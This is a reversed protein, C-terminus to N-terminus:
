PFFVHAAVGLDKFADSPPKTRGGQTKVPEPFRRQTEAAKLFEPINSGEDRGAPIRNLAGGSAPNYKVVIIQAQGETPPLALTRERAARLFLIAPDM